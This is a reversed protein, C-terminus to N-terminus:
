KALLGADRLIPFYTEREANIMEAADKGDIYYMAQKMKAFEAKIKEDAVVQRIADHLKRAVEPPTGRPAFIIGIPVQIPVKYGEDEFTPVNPFNSSRQKAFTVLARLKGSEMQPAAAVETVSGMQLHGGLIATVLEADGKYQIDTLKIGAVKSFVTPAMFTVSGKGLHGYDVDRGAKIAAVLDKLTKYPFDARVVLMQPSMQWGILPVLDDAKYPTAQLLPTTSFAGQYFHGITYGDASAKAVANAAITQAAGPRASVIVPVNLLKSLGDALVRVSIDTQGGLALGHLLTIPKNPFGSQAHAPLAGALCSAAALTALTRTILRKIMDDGPIFM